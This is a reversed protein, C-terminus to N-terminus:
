EGEARGVSQQQCRSAVVDWWYTVPHSQWISNIFRFDSIYEGPVLAGAHAQWVERRVVFASVGIESVRPSKGWRASPLIRGYGHDMRIFIVDPANLVVIQKLGAVFTPLILQDDDDLILQYAGVLNPAYRAMNETAWGIGRRESDMLVTHIFDRDTQQMLSLQHAAFM